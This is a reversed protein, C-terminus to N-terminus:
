RSGPFEVVLYDIPGMEDLDDSMDTREVCDTTDLTGHKTPCARAQPIQMEALADVSARAKMEQRTGLVVNLAVLLGVIVATSVEAILLSVVAVVILMINMPDRLQELAVTWTSVKAEKQLMNAGYTALRSQAEATTLGRDADTELRTVVEDPALAHWAESTESTTTATPVNVAGSM